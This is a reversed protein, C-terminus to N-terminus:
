QAMVDRCHEIQRGFLDSLVIGTGADTVSELVLAAILPVRM